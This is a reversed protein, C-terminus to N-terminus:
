ENFRKLNYENWNGPRPHHAPITIEEDSGRGHQAMPYTARRSGEKSTTAM